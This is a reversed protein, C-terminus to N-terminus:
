QYGLHSVFCTSSNFVGTDLTLYLIHVIINFVGTDMALYLIYVLVLAM